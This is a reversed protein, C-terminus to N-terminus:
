GLDLVVIEPPCNFRVPIMSCGLGGSVLLHRSEEVIHGYAFRQGYDSPVIPRGFFPLAVQGGHTHGSLTLSAKEPVQPFIDPEHAMLLMPLGDDPVAALTARLDDRRVLQDGLGALWFEPRDGGGLRVAANEYVAIGQERLAATSGEGDGDEIWDHNGLVAHVGLPASLKGLAASWVPIPVKASRFRRMGAIYDGLLLVIDPALANTREVIAAIRAASMWPDCAHIDALIVARMTAGERWRPPRLRYQTVALRVLPEFAFAYASFATAGIAGLGLTSLFARRTIM